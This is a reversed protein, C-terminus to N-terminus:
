LRLDVFREPKRIFGLYRLEDTVLSRADMTVDRHVRTTTQEPIPMRHTGRTEHARDFAVVLKRTEDRLLMQTLFCLNWIRVAPNHVAM